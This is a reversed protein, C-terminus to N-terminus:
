LLAEMIPLNGRCELLCAAFFVLTVAVYVMGKHKPQRDTKKSELIWAFCFLYLLLFVLCHPFLSAFYLLIGRMGKGFIFFMLLFGNRIGTYITFASQYLLFIPSASLIWLLLFYKGHSWLSQLMGASMEYEASWVVMNQEMQELLGRFSNQFIYYVLAGFFFGILFLLIIRQFFGAKGIRSKKKEHQIM